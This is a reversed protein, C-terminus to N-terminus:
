RRCKLHIHGVAGRRLSGGPFSLDAAYPEYRREVGNVADHIAAHFIALARGSLVPGPDVMLQAGVATWHTVANRSGAQDQGAVTAPAGLAISSVLLMRAACQQIQM